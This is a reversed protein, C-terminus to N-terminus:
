STSSSHLHFFSKTSQNHKCSSNVHYPNPTIVQLQAWRVEGVYNSTIIQTWRVEGVNNCDMWICPLLLHMAPASAHCSCPCRACQLCPRVRARADHTHQYNGLTLHHHYEENTRSKNQHWLRKSSWSSLSSSSCPRSLMHNLLTYIYPLPPPPPQVMGLHSTGCRGECAEYKNITNVHPALLPYIEIICLESISTWRVGGM